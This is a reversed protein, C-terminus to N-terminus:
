EEEDKSKELLEAKILNREETFTKYMQEDNVKRSFIVAEEYKQKLDFVDVAKNMEDIHMKINENRIREIDEKNVDIHNIPTKVPSKKIPEIKKLVPIEEHNDYAQTMEETTYLGAMEHPFAKRLALAEACKVLMVDPMKKWMQSSFSAYSDYRAVGYLPMKFGKKYVGIRAATPNNKSIWVDHWKGNEDCWEPMTQGEYKGTRDAILRLGDISVQFSRQNGYKISYIQRSFPDLNTRKCQHLFLTLEDDSAGVCINRKILDKQQTTFGETEGKVKTVEQNQSKNEYESLDASM